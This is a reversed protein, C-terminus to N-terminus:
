GPILLFLERCETLKNSEGFSRISLVSVASQRLVLEDFQELGLMELGEDLAGLLVAPMELGGLELREDEVAPQVRDPAARGLQSVAGDDLAQPDVASTEPGRGRTGRRWAGDRGV